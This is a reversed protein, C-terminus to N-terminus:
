LIDKRKEQIIINRDKKARQIPTETADILVIEYKIDSKPLVKRGPLSLRGDRILMDEVWRINRYCSIM